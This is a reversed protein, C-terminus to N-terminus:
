GEGAGTQQGSIQTERDTDQDSAAVQTVVPDEWPGTIHYQIQVAGRLPEKFIEKLVFLGAGIVPGAAIAGVVPLTNGVEGSVIATQDYTREILNVSGAIGIDAAPSRLVLNDTHATGNAVTFDGKLKDFFFGKKFVDRFDLMLRRPLADVSLLGVARGAGPKVETLSGKDINMSATGNASALISPPMGGTWELNVILRGQKADVGSEFGMFDLTDGVDESDMQISMTSRDETPGLVSRLTGTFGFTPGTIRVEPIEFGNPLAILETELQGLNLGWMQFDSATIKMPPVLAPDGHKDSGDSEDDDLVLREMELTMPTARLTIDFPVTIVGKTEESDLEIRWAGPQKELKIAANATQQEAAILSGVQIDGGAIIDEVATTGDGGFDVALWEDVSFRKFDGKIFLGHDAELGTDLGDGVVTGRDLQVGDQDSRFRVAAHVAEDFRIDWEWIGEEPFRFDIALPKPGTADKHLPDPLKIEMGELDSELRIYFSENSDVSPFHLYGDWQSEGALHEQLPLNMADSLMSVSLPGKVWARLARGEYDGVDIVVPEGLIEAQIESATMNDVGIDLRGNISTLPDEVEGYYAVGDVIDLKIDVERSELDKLPLLLDVTAAGTGETVRTITLGGHLHPPLPIDRAYALIADLEGAASGEIDLMGVPLDPIRADVTQVPVDGLLGSHVKASLGENLFLFDARVETAQPWGDAYALVMDEAGFGIEFRGQGDRWPFGKLPGQVVVDASPVRGSVIANDLWGKVGETMIGVPLYPSVRSLDLNRLGAELDITGVKGGTPLALKLSGDIALDPNAVGFEDGIITLGEPSRSWVFLGHAEAFSLPQRFLWPMDVELDRSDLELRGGRGDSRVKGSLGRVGPSRDRTQVAIGIVEAELELDFGQPHDDIISLQVALDRIEGRPQLAVLDERLAVDTVYPILPSFAQLRLYDADVYFTGESGSTTVSREVRIRQSFNERGETVMRLNEVLAEWGSQRRDWEVRGSLYQYGVLADTEPEPLRLENVSFEATIRTPLREQLDIWLRLDAKGDVPMQEPLGAVRELAGFDFDSLSAYARWADAEATPNAWFVVRESVEPPPQFDGGIRIDGDQHTVDLNVDDFVWTTGGEMQDNVVLTSNKLQLSGNPIEGSEGSQLDAVPTDLVLLEGDENRTVDAQVRHLTIRDWVPKWALISQMVDLSLSGRRASVLTAGDRGFIQVGNFLIEPGGLSWRADLADIQFDLGTAGSVAQEVPVRYEPVQAVLIRFIGVLVAFLIVLAAFAGATWKWVLRVFGAM